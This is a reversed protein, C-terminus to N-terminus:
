AMNIPKKESGKLELCSYTSSYCFYSQICLVLCVYLLINMVNSLAQIEEIQVVKSFYLDSMIKLFNAFGILIVQTNLCSYENPCLKENELRLTHLTCYVNLFIFWVFQVDPFKMLQVVITMILLGICILPSVINFFTVRHIKWLKWQQICIFYINQLNILFNSLLAVNLSMFPLQWKLTLVDLQNLMELFSIGSLLGCIIISVLCYKTFSRQTKYGVFPYLLTSISFALVALITTIVKLLEISTM